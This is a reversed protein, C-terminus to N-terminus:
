ASSTSAAPPSRWSLFLDIVVPSGAATSQHYAQWVQGNTLLMWQVGHNVAYALVQSLHRETLKQAVRKVEVFAVVEGDIKVGYDAFEHRVQFEMTLDDYKDFGLAEFVSTVLLRTEAENADRAVFKGL